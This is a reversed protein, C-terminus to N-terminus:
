IQLKVESKVSPGKANKRRRAVPKKPAVSASATRRQRLHKVIETIDDRTLDLPDKDFLDQIDSMDKGQTSTNQKKAVTM